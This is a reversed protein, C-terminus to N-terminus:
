QEIEREVTVWIDNFLLYVTHTCTYWRLAANYKDIDLYKKLVSYWKLPPQEGEVSERVNCKCSKLLKNIKRSREHETKHVTCKSMTWSVTMEKWWKCAVDGEFNWVSQSVVVGIDPATEFKGFITCSIILVNWRWFKENIHKYIM